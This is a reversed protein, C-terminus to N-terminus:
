SLARCSPITFSKELTLAYNISFRSLLNIASVEYSPSNLQQVNKQNATAHHSLATAWTDEATPHYTECIKLDNTFPIAPNLQPSWTITYQQAITLPSTSTNSSHLRWFIRLNTQLNIPSRPLINCPWKLTYIQYKLCYEPLTCWLVFLVSDKHFSIPSTLSKVRIPPM